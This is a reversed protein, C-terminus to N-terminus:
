IIIILIDISFAGGPGHDSCRGLVAVVLLLVFYVPHVSLGIAGPSPGYKQLWIKDSSKLGARHLRFGM